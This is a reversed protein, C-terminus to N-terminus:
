REYGRPIPIGRRKNKRGRNSRVMLENVHSIRGGEALGEGVGLVSVSIIKLV